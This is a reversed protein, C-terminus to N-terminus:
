FLLSVLVKKSMTTSERVDDADFRELLDFFAAFNDSAAFLQERLTDDSSTLNGLVFLLRVVLPQQECKFSTKCDNLTNKKRCVTCTVHQQVLSLLIKPVTDDNSCLAM